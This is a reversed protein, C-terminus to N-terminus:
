DHEHRRKARSFSKLEVHFDTPLLLSVKVSIMIQRRPFCVLNQDFSMTILYSRNLIENGETRNEDM